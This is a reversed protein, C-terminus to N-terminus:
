GASPGEGNGQLGRPIANGFLWTFENEEANDVLNVQTTNRNSRGLIFGCIARFSSELTPVTEEQNATCDPRIHGEKGCRYCEMSGAPAGGPLLPFGTRESPRMGDPFL